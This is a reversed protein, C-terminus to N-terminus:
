PMEGRLRRAVYGHEHEEAIALATRGDAARAEVAAGHALLVNVLALNGGSAAVHLPTDGNGDRAELEAGRRLLVSVIRLDARGALAAHLATNRLDNDSRARVDAGAALLADVADGRGFHAALHLAPWGDPSRGGVAARDARLAERVLAPDGIAAAECLTLAPRQALLAALEEQRGGYVAALIPTPAGASV